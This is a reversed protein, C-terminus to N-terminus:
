RRLLMTCVLCEEGRRLTGFHMPCIHYGEQYLRALNAYGEGLVQQREETKEKDAATGKTRALEARLDRVCATLMELEKELWALRAEIEEGV